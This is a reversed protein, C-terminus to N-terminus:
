RNMDRKGRGWDVIGGRGGWCVCVCVCVERLWGRFSCDLLRLCPDALAAFAFPTTCVQKASAKALLGEIDRVLGQRQVELQAARAQAGAAEASIGEPADELRRRAELSQM